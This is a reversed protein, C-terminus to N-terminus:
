NKESNIKWKITLICLTIMWWWFGPTLSSVLPLMVANKEGNTLNDLKTNLVGDISLNSFYNALIQSGNSKNFLKSVITNKFNYNNVFLMDSPPYVKGFINKNYPNYDYLVTGKDPKSHGSLISLLSSKGSGVAGVVGYITGKHFKLHRVDLVTRSKVLRQIKKSELILTTKKSM